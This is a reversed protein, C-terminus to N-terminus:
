IVTENCPVGGVGCVAFLPDFIAKATASFLQYPCIDVGNHRIMFHIHCGNGHYLLQGLVEGQSIKQNLSLPVAEQQIDAFTENLAWSEFAISLEYGWTTIFQVSTQWRDPPDTSYMWTRIGVVRVNCPALINVSTNCGFDIGNHFGGWPVYGYGGIIHIVEVLAVPFELVPAERSWEAPLYAWLAFVGLSSGIIIIPIFIGLLIKSRQKM